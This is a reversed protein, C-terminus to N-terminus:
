VGDGRDAGTTTGPGPEAGWEYRVDELQGTPEFGRAVAEFGNAQYFACAGANRAFTYLWLRGASRAKAWDLLQRGIGRRHRGVRVHLQAVSDRSAAIFGALEDGLLALCVDHAPLVETLFFDRQESLPHPDTVGVGAEFSARWMPILLDLYRSDYPVLSAPGGDSM